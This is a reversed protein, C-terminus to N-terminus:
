HDYATFSRGPQGIQWNHWCGAALALVRQCIRAWVGEPTHGGHRELSFQGKLTDNVSEIWQRIGGLAGFRPREHQRDPRVLQAGLADTIFQEFEAGAFGKDTIFIEQGHLLEGRAARELLAAAIEREPENAPALCFAIPM